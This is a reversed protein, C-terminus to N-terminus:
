NIGPTLTFLVSHNWLLFRTGVIYFILIVTYVIMHSVKQPLETSKAIEIDNKSACNFFKLVRPVIDDKVYFSYISKSIQPCHNKIELIPGVSIIPMGFTICVVNQQLHDASFNPYEWLKSTIYTALLGGFSFGLLSLIVM